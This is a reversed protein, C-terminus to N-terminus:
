MREHLHYKYKKMLKVFTEFALKAFYRIILLDSLNYYYVTFFDLLIYGLIYEGQELM